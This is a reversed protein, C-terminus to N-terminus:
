PKTIRFLLERLLGHIWWLGLFDNVDEVEFYFKLLTHVSDVDGLAIAALLIATETEEVERVQSGSQIVLLHRVRERAEKSEADTMGYPGFLEEAFAMAKDTYPGIDSCAHFETSARQQLEAPIIM